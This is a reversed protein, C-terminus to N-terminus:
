RKALLVKPAAAHEAAYADNRILSSGAGWSLHWFTNGAQYFSDYADAEIGMCRTELFNLLGEDDHDADAPATYDLVYLIDIDNPNASHTASGILWVANVGGGAIVRQGYARLSQIDAAIEYIKM